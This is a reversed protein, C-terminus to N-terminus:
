ISPRTKKTRGRKRTEDQTKQVVVKKLDKWKKRVQNVTRANGGVANVCRTIKAWAEQKKKNTVGNQFVSMIVAAEVQMEELLVETEKETFNPKKLRTLLQQNTACDDSRDLAVTPKFPDVLCQSSIHGSALRRSLFTAFPQSKGTWFYRSGALRLSGAENDSVESDSAPTRMDKCDKDFWGNKPQMKDLRVRREMCSAACKLCSLFVDVANKINTSILGHAIQLQERLM